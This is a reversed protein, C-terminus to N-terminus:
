ENRLSKVPNTMAAKISHFGVTLLTILLAAVGAILFVGVGIDTRYEFDELWKSMVYWGVPSSIVFAIAVLKLFDISLLSVIQLVSAGMVKRVGIEKTRQVAMFSILGYLGLCSVFIAIGSFINLLYFTRNERGYAGNLTEDLFQYSFLQDPFTHTWVQEIHVLAKQLSAKSSAM